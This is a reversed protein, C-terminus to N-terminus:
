IYIKENYVPLESALVRSYVVESVWITHTFKELFIQM